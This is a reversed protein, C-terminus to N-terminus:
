EVTRQVAKDLATALVRASERASVSVLAELNARYGFAQTNRLFNALVRSLTQPEPMRKAAFAVVEGAKSARLTEIVTSEEHLMAFVPRGSLIAQYAKSPSYHRETSGIVLVASSFALHNLTDLYPIRSPLENVMEDLSYKEIYPRVVHGRDPDNEFIGTGVFHLKLEGALEPEDKRLQTLARMFIDLVEFAKPLLAGAYILHIKGDTPDFLTLPRPKARVAEYDRDTWGYPMGATVVRGRLKPNRQLMSEFYATNVGTIVKAGSVAIPEAIKAWEQAIRAKTWIRDRSPFEHVWPDIYDIGYPVHYRRYIHPGLLAANYAPVTFHVFDLKGERAMRSIARYYFPLSRIAIDGILRIPKTPFASTHVIELDPPLLTFLEHDVQCEYYREHTTLIIPKWGFEPLYYSWLRSRHVSPLFSPVFHPAVLLVTRM